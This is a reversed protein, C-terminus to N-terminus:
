FIMQAAFNRVKLPEENRGIKVISISDIGHILALRLRGMSSASETHWFQLIASSIGQRVRHELVGCLLFGVQCHQSDPIRKLGAPTLLEIMTIM